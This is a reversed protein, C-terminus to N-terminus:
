RSVSSARRRRRRCARGCASARPRTPASSSARSTTCSPSSIPPGPSVTPRERGRQTSSSTAAAAFKAYEPLLTQLNLGFDRSLKTLFQFQESAGKVSGTAFTLARNARDVALAADLVSRAFEQFFYGALVTKLLRAQREMYAMRESTTKLNAEMSALSRNVPDVAATIKHLAADGAIGFRKLENLAKEADAVAIKLNVARTTAM